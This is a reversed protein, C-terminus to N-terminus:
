PAPCWPQRAGKGDYRRALGERVLIERVDQGDRTFIGTVLARGYADYQFEHILRVGGAMLQILRDRAEQALAREEPCKGNLEPTDIGSIRARVQAVFGGSASLKISDGDTAEPKHWKGEPGLRVVFGGDQELRLVSAGPLTEGRAPVALSAALAALILSRRM